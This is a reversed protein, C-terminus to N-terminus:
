GDKEEMVSLLMTDILADATAGPDRGIAAEIADTMERSRESVRNFIIDRGALREIEKAKEESDVLTGPQFWMVTKQGNVECPAMVPVPIEPMYKTLVKV